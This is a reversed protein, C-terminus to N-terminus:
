QETSGSDSEGSPQAPQESPAEAPPAPAAQETTTEAAPVSDMITSTSDQTYMISLGLSTIMFTIAAATTVKTLLTAASRAGFATQSTAGGFTSALDGAKGSQLLISLILIATAALHLVLLLGFM